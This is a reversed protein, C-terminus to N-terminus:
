HLTKMKLWVILNYIFQHLKLLLFYRRDYIEASLLSNNDMDKDYVLCVIGLSTKVKKVEKIIRVKSM